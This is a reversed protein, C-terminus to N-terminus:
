VRFESVFVDLEFSPICVRFCNRSSVGQVCIEMYWGSLDQCM